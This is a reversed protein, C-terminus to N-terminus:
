VGLQQLAQKAAQQEAEKKSRGSGVGVVEGQISLEVEFSKQHDPGTERVTAYRPLTDHRKQCWEQFQTKYDGAGPQEQQAVIHTLEEAFIRRTVTRSADFGGDLHVAALVAELTPRRKGKLRPRGMTKPKRPPPPDYLAADLRLRTIVSARPLTAVKDLLELAAFSSDAVFVLDRGPLWRGVLRIM